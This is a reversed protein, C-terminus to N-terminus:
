LSINEIERKFTSLYLEGLSIPVCSVLEWGQAGLENLEASLRTETKSASELMGSKMLSVRYEFKKM